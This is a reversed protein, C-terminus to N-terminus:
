VHRSRFVKKTQINLLRYAKKGPAYGLLISKIGKSGFKGDRKDKPVLAYAPAGFPRFWSTDVKRKFIREYPIEGKLGSAPTRRILFAATSMVDSWYKKSLGSDILLATTDNALTQNMREALGNQEPTDPATTHHIIGSSALEDEFERSMYEGGGDSQFFEVFNKLFHSEGIEEKFHEQVDKKWKRFIAIAQSKHQM